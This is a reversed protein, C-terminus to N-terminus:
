KGHRHARTPAVCEWAYRPQNTNQKIIKVMGQIKDNVIIEYCVNDCKRKSELNGLKQGASGLGDFYM